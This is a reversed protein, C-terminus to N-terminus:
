GLADRLADFRQQWLAKVRAVDAKGGLKVHEVAVVSKAPGKSAFYVNAQTGDDCDFRISKGEVATRIRTLGSPLWTKRRRADAFMRYLAALEVGFTRSKSAQYAGGRQQGVDRLGRIREYGVTVMQSWWGELGHEAHLRRAIERHPMEHAGVGDLVRVWGSWTRGTKKRVVEDSMGALEAWRERPAAVVASRARTRPKRALIVARAATYSEGTKKMRERVVRKLDKDRTM